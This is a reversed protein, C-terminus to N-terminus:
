TNHQTYWLKLQIWVALLALTAANTWTKNLMLTALIAVRVNTSFLGCTTKSLCAILLLCVGKLWQFLTNTATHFDKKGNRSDKKDWYCATPDLLKNETKLRLMDVTFNTMLVKLSTRKFTSYIKCINGTAFTTPFLGRLENTYQSIWTFQNQHGSVLFLRLKHKCQPHTM